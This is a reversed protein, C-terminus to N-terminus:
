AGTIPDTGLSSVVMLTAATSTLPTVAGGYGAYATLLQDRYLLYEGDIRQQVAKYPSDPYRAFGAKGDTISKPSFLPLSALCFRAMAFAAFLRLASVFNAAATTGAAAATAYDALLDASLANIEAALRQNFVPVQLTTDSLEKSSVGLLARVSDYDTFFFAM